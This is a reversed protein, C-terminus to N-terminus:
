HTGSDERKIDELCRWVTAHKRGALLMEVALRAEQAQKNNGIISITKGLVAISAGTLNEMNRRAKGQTGIVRALLRKITNPSGKINIVDLQMGDRILKLATNPAFGRGVAKVIEEAKLIAEPNGEIVIEKAIVLKTQTLREIKSKTSGDKGILIAKREEPIKVLM